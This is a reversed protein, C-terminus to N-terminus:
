VPLQEITNAAIGSRSFLEIVKNQKFNLQEKYNLHQLDCGGCLSFHQCKAVVRNKSANNVTILKGRAYKNKQEILRIDVNEHPLSGNIFVPKKKYYAVGCGNSDLKEITLTLTEKTKIQTPKTIKAKFFNAM